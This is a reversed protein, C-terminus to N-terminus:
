TVQRLLKEGRGAFEMYRILFLTLTVIAITCIVFVWLAYSFPMLMFEMELTEGPSRILYVQPAILFNSQRVSFNIPYTFRLVALREPTM